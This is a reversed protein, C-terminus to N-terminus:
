QAFEGVGLLDGVLPLAPEALGEGEGVRFLPDLSLYVSERLTRCRTFPTPLRFPWPLFKGTGLGQSEM